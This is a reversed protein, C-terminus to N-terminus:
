IDPGVTPGTNTYLGAWTAGDDRPNVNVAPRSANTTWYVVDGLPVNPITAYPYATPDHEKTHMTAIVEWYARVDTWNGDEVSSTLTSSTTLAPVPQVGIHISPQVHPDMEGWLGTRSMQSKEIPTYLNLVPDTITAIDSNGMRNTSESVSALAGGSATQTVGHMTVLRSEPLHGGVNVTITTDTPWRHNATPLGHGTNTLPTTLMGMKPKYHSKLVCTNVATKGDLQHIKDALSPWGGFQNNPSVNTGKATTQAWYNYLFTQRGVQHHPIYNIFNANPQDTGYYDQLMGRYSSGVVDYKPKAIGTPIMTQTADFSTFSVNSGQGTKNLAHAIAIDNIQNLTALNTASSATAFQITTGRYYVEISVETCRAGRDLLSFESPNMYLAPIHWPIEALYSTLFNAVYAQTSTHDSQLINPALGFTMFKHVKRYVNDRNEFLSLPREISYVMDVASNGGIDAMEKGTGPLSTMEVDTSLSSGVPLSAEGSAQAAQKPATGEPIAGSPRKNKNTTTSENLTPAATKSSPGPLDTEFLDPRDKYTQELWKPDANKYDKEYQKSKWKYIPPAM